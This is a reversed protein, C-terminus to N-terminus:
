RACGKCMRFAALGSNPGGRKLRELHGTQVLRQLAYSVARRSLGTYEQMRGQALTVIGERDAHRFLVLWLLADGPRLGNERKDLDCFANFAHWRRRNGGTDQHRAAKAKARDANAQKTALHQRAQEMLAAQEPTPEPIFQNM